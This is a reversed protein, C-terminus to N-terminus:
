PLATVGLGSPAAPIVLPGAGEALNSYTTGATNRAGVRYCYIQGAVATPDSYTKVNAPTSGIPTWTETRPAGRAVCSGLMREIVFTAENDSNDTWDLKFGAAHGTAAMLLCGLTMLWRMTM